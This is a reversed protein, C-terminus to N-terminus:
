HDTKFEIVINFLPVDSINQVVHVIPEAYKISNPEQLSGKKLGDKNYRPDTLRAPNLKVVVRQAHSHLQRTDGPALIEEFIRFQEDEYVVKNKVPEYWQEPGKYAPHNRKFAIEYFEGTPAKYSENTLFVAAGGRKLKITGKSSKIKLPKLAVIVRTGVTENYALAFSASNRMVLVYENDIAVSDQFQIKEKKKEVKNQVLSNGFAFLNSILALALITLYKM